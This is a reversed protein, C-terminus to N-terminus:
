ALAFVGRATDLQDAFGAGGPLGDRLRATINLLPGDDAAGAVLDTLATYGENLLREPAHDGEALRQAARVFGRRADIHRDAALHQAALVWHARSLARDDRGLSRALALNLRAAHLGAHRDTDGPNMTSEGWGPWTFSALDYCTAKTVGRLEDAQDMDKLADAATLGHQIAATAFFVVAPLNKDEWYLHRVLEHLGTAAALPDPLDTYVALAAFAGEDAYRALCDHLM